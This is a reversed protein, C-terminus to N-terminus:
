KIYAPRQLKEKEETRKAEERQIRASPDIIDIDALLRPDVEDDRIECTAYAKAVSRIWGLTTPNQKKIYKEYDEIKAVADKQEKRTRALAFHVIKCISKIDAPSFWQTIEALRGFDVTEHGPTQMSYRKFIEERTKTDPPPVYIICTALRGERKLAVDVSWIYNTAGVIALNPVNEVEDCLKRFTARLDRSWSGENAEVTVSRAIGLADLEDVFIIVPKGTAAVDKAYNFKLTLRKESEGSWMSQIESLIVEVFEIGQQKAIEKTIATKGCGPAGHLTIGTSGQAIEVKYMPNEPDKIKSVILMDFMDKAEDLGCLGRLTGVKGIIVRRAHLLKFDDPDKRLEEEALELAKQFEGEKSLERIQELAATHEQSDGKVSSAKSVFGSYSKRKKSEALEKRNRADKFDPNLELAKDYSEVAGNIDNLYEKALGLIYWGEAFDPKLELVKLIDTKGEVYRELCCFALGRNYHYKFREDDDERANRIAESYLEIAEAFEGREYRINALKYYDRASREADATTRIEFDEHLFRREEEKQLELKVRTKEYRDFISEEGGPCARLYQEESYFRGIFVVDNSAYGKIILWGTEDSPWVYSESPMSQKKGLMRLETLNHVDDIVVEPFFVRYVANETERAEKKTKEIITVESGEIGRLQPSQLWSVVHTKTEAPVFM